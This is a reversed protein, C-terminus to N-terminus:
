VTTELVAVPGSRYRRVVSFRQPRLWEFPEEDWEVRMGLRRLRVRQRANVGPSVGDAGGVSVTPLGVDRNFRNTDSALPWLQEATARLNWRWTFTFAPYRM